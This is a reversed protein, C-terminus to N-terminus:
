FCCAHNSVLSLTGQLLIVKTLCDEIEKALVNEQCVNLCKVLKDWSCEVDKNIWQKFIEYMADRPQDHTSM